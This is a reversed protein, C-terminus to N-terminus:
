YIRDSYKNNRNRKCKLTVLKSLQRRNYEKTLKKQKEPTLTLNNIDDKLQLNYRKSFKSDFNNVTQLWLDTQVIDSQQIESNLIDNPTVHPIHEIYMSEAIDSLSVNPFMNIVKM